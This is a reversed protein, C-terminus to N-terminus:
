TPASTRTALSCASTPTCRRRARTITARAWIATAACAGARAACWWPAAQRADQAGVIGYVVHAGVEELQSAWNINAEEDFRALLEVVVTIEKAASPRKSQPHADAGSDAGTRYVTQKIAVVDPDSRRARRSNIVPKFSQFPQHLLIDGKRMAAFMDPRKVLAPPM